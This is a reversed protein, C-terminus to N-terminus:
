SDWNLYIHKYLQSHQAKKALMKLDAICKAITEEEQQWLPEAGHAEGGM